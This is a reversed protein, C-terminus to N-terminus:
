VCCSSLSLKPVLPVSCPGGSHESQGEGTGTGLAWHRWFLVWAEGEVWETGCGEQPGSAM